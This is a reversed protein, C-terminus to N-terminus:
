EAARAGALQAAVGARDTQIWYEVIRGEAVRYVASATERLPAQTPQEGFFSARHHGTQTWRVYAKDGEVMFEDIHLTFDGWLAKFDHVHNRYDEPSRSVMHPHESLVQHAAVREHLTQEAVSTDVGSRVLDLFKRVVRRTETTQECM